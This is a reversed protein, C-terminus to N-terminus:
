LGFAEEVMNTTAEITTTDNWVIEIARDNKCKTVEMPTLTDYAQRIIAEKEAENLDSRNRIEDLMHIHDPRNFWDFKTGQNILRVTRPSIPIIAAEDIDGECIITDYQSSLALLEAIIFPTLEELIHKEREAMREKPIQWFDKLGLEKVLDRRFWPQYQPDAFAFLRDRAEDTSYVYVNHRRSLENAITTKGRGWIFCVNKLKERLINDPINM